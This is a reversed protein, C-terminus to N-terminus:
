LEIAQRVTNVAMLFLVICIILADNPFVFVWMWVNVLTILLKLPVQILINSNPSANCESLLWYGVLSPKCSNFWHLVTPYFLPFTYSSLRFLHVLIMAMKNSKTQNCLQSHKRQFSILGNIYACISEANHNCSHLTIHSVGIVFLGQWYLFLDAGSIDLHSANVKARFKSSNQLSFVLFLAAHLFLFRRRYRKKKLSEKSTLSQSSPNWSYRVANFTENAKVVKVFLKFNQLIM